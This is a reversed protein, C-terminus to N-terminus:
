KQPMAGTINSAIDLFGGPNGPIADLVGTAAGFINSLGQEQAERQLQQAKMQNSLATNADQEVGLGSKLTEGFLGSLGAAGQQQQTQKMNANKLQISQLADSLNGASSKQTSSILSPVAAMNGTRAGLDLATRRGAGAGGAAIQGAQTGMQNITTSGLGQPNTMEQSFFPSMQGYLGQSQGFLTNGQAIQNNGLNSFATADGGYPNTGFYSAVMGAM